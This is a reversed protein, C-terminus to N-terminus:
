WHYGVFWYTVDGDPEKVTRTGQIFSDGPVRKATEPIQCHAHFGALEGDNLRKGKRSFTVATAGHASRVALRAGGPLDSAQDRGTATARQLLHQYIDAIAAM